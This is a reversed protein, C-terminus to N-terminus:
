HGKRILKFAQKLLRLRLYWKILFSYKFVLTPIKSCSVWDEYLIRSNNDVIYNLYGVDNFPYGSSLIDYNTVYIFRDSILFYKNFM